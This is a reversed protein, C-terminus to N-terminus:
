KGGTCFQATLFTAAMADSFVPMCIVISCTFRSNGSSKPISPNRAKCGREAEGSPNDLFSESGLTISVMASTRFITHSTCSSGSNWFRTTMSSNDIVCALSLVLPKIPSRRMFPSSCSSQNDDRPMSRSLSVTSTFPARSESARSSMARLSVAATSVM